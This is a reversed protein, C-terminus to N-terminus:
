RRVMTFRHDSARCHQIRRTASGPGQGYVFAGDITGDIRVPDEMSGRWTGCLEFWHDLSGSPWYEFWYDGGACGGGGVTGAINGPVIITLETGTVFMLPKEYYIYRDIGGLGVQSSPDDVATLKGEGNAFEGEYRRVKVADPFPLMEGTVSNRVVECSASATLTVIYAGSPGSLVAGPFPPPTLPSIPTNPSPSMPSQGGRDCGAVVLVLMCLGLLVRALNM